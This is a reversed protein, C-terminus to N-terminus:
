FHCLVGYSAPQSNKVAKLSFEAYTIVTRAKIKEKHAFTEEHLSTELSPFKRANKTKLNKTKDKKKRNEELLFLIFEM